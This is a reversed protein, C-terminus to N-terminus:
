RAKLFARMHEPPADGYDFAWYLVDRADLAAQRLYHQLAKLDGASLLVCALEIRPGFPAGGQAQARELLVRIGHPDAKPFVRRIADEVDLRDDYTPV